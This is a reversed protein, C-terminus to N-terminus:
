NSLQAAKWHWSLDGTSSSPTRSPCGPCGYYCFQKRLFEATFNVRPKLVLEAFKIPKLVLESFEIREAFEIRPKLVLEAFSICPKLVLEAFSICPKLVLEAAFDFHKTFFVYFYSISLYAL